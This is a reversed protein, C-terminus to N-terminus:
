GGRPAGSRSTRSRQSGSPCCRTRDRKRPNLGRATFAEFVEQALLNSAGPVQYTGPPLNGFHLRRAKRSLGTGNMASAPVGAAQTVWQFGDWIKKPGENDTAGRRSVNRSGSKDTRGLM